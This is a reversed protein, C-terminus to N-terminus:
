VMLCDGCHVHIRHM